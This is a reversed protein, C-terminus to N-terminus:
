EKPIVHIPFDRRCVLAFTSLSSLLQKASHCVRFIRMAKGMNDRETPNIVADLVARTQSETIKNTQTNFSLRTMTSTQM